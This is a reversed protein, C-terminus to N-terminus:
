PKKEEAIIKDLAGLLFPVAPRDAFVAMQAALGGPVTKM